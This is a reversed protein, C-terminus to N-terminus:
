AEGTSNRPERWRRPPRMATRRVDLVVERVIVNLIGVLVPTITLRTGTRVVTVVTTRVVRLFYSSQPSGVGSRM